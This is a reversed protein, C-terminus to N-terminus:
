DRKKAAKLRRKIEPLVDQLTKTGDLPLTARTVGGGDSKKGATKKVACGLERCLPALAKVGMKMRAGLADLDVDYNCVRLAMLIVHLCVLDKMAKPRSFRRPEDPGPAVGGATATGGSHQEEMFADVCARQIGADVRERTTWSLYKNGTYADDDDGEVDKRRERKESIHDKAHLFVLLFDLAALAKARTKQRDNEERDTAGGSHEALKPVLGLIFDDVGGGDRLEKMASPKKAAKVMEKWKTRKELLAFMPFLNFPYADIANTASPNHEPINRREGALKSLQSADMEGETARKLTAEMADPAAITNGDVRREAMIKAVKRQQKASAFAKLLRANHAARVQYDNLDEAGDWEPEDYDLAHCRCELDIVRSGGVPMLELEYEVADDGGGGGGGKGKEAGKRNVPVLKGLLYKCADGAPYHGLPAHNAGIYDVGDTRGRLLMMHGRYPLNKRWARFETGPPPLGGTAGLRCVFPGEAMDEKKPVYEVSVLAKRKLGSVHHRTEYESMADAAREPAETSHRPRPDGPKASFPCACFSARALCSSLPADTKSSLVELARVGGRVFREYVGNRRDMDVWADRESM